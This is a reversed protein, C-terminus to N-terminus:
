RPVGLCDCFREVREIIELREALGNILHEPFISVGNLAGLLSGVVAGTSDTDGGLNVVDYLAEINTPNLLFCAYATGLTNHALQNDTGFYGLIQEDTLRVTTKFKELAETMRYDDGLKSWAIGLCAATNAKILFNQPSFEQPDMSLAYNLAWIQAMCSSLALTTRHTMFTFDTVEKPWDEMFVQYANESLLQMRRVYVSLPLARTVVANGFGFDAKETKGSESWHTGNAMREAAEITSGGWTSHDRRYEAVLEAAIADMNFEGGSKIFATAVAMAGQTDDTTEGRNRNGYQKHDKPLAIYSTVRKRKKKDVQQLSFAEQPLGLADGIGAGIFAGLIKERLYITTM